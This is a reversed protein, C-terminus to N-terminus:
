YVVTIRTKDGPTNLGSVQPEVRLIQPEGVLCRIDNAGDFALDRMQDELGLGVMGPFFMISNRSSAETQVAHYLYPFSLLNLTRM